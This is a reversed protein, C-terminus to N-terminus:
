SVLKFRRLENNALDYQAMNSVAVDILEVAAMYFLEQSYAIDDPTATKRWKALEEPTSELLYKLNNLDHQNM